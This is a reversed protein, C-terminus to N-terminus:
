RTVLLTFITKSHMLTNLPNCLKHKKKKIFKCPFELNNQEGQVFDELQEWPIVAIETQKYLSHRSTVHPLWTIHDKQFPKFLPSQVTEKLAEILDREKSAVFPEDQLIEPIGVDDVVVKSYDQNLMVYFFNYIM